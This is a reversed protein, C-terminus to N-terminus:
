QVVANCAAGGLTGALSSVTPAKGAVTAGTLTLSISAHAAITKNNAKPTLSVTTGNFAVKANSSVLLPRSSYRWTVLWDSLAANSPNSVDVQAQFLGSGTKTAKYTVTCSTVPVDPLPTLLYSQNNTDQALVQGKDNIAVAVRLKANGALPAEQALNRMGQGNPGTVFAVPDLAQATPYSSGVVQGLNNVGSATSQGGGLHGIDKIPAGNPGTLFAHQATQGPALQSSGVVQGIDNIGAATSSDGGLTGLDQLGTANAGTLLAHTNYNSTSQNNAIAGDAIIQGLKNIGNPQVSIFGAPKVWENVGTGNPGTFFTHNLVLQAIPRGNVLNGSLGVIRGDSSIAAFYSQTDGPLVALPKLTLSNPASIFPTAAGTTGSNTGAAEGADDIGLAGATFSYVNGLYQVGIGNAGTIFGTQAGNNGKLGVVAGNNNLGTAKYTPTGFSTDDTPDVIPQVLWKAAQAHGIHCAALATLLALKTLKFPKNMVYGQNTKPKNAKGRLRRSPRV